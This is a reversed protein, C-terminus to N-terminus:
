KAILPLFILWRPNVVVVRGAAPSLTDSYLYTGSLPFTAQFSQGPNLMGSFFANDDARISHTQTGTNTWTVVGGTTITVVAPTFGDANVQVNARDPIPNLAAGSWFGLFLVLSLLFSGIWRLGKM